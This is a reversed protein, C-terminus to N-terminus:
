AQKESSKNAFYYVVAGVAIIGIGILSDIFKDKIIFYLFWVNALIFLIPTVPYGFTKYPRAIEPHKIRYVIVGVVTTLSFLTLAFTSYTMIRDFSATLLILIAIATQMWIARAPIGSNNSANFIKFVSYKKAVSQIVRPGTIIMSSISSVLFLSIILSFIKGINANFIHSASIFGVERPAFTHSDVVMESAPATYLFVFNLLIYLLMVVLTGTIISIPINRKPNRVESAIYASANWGSYAFSVYVLGIAFPSSFASKFTSTTVAFISQQGGGYYLGAIIFVLILLVKFSTFVAQFKGSVAHNISHIITTLLIIAIAVFTSNFYPFVTHFYIGFTMSCLAIPASFGITASIWGSLFGFSPHYIKSLFHFEGGSEPLAAGLESYSFAGFLAILGGVVWLLIITAYDHIDLLQFGLSVFVGTGIMNAIVISISHTLTYKKDSM